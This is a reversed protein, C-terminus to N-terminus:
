EKFELSYSTHSRELINLGHKNILAVLYTVANKNVGYKKSLEKPGAHYNKWLNYINVKDQKSLKAM